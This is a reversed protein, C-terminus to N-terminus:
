KDKICRVSSARRKENTLISTYNYDYYMIQQLTLNHVPLEMHRWWYAGIGIGFPNGASDHNGGPIASFGSKNNASLDNGVAGPKTSSQWLITDALAKGIKLYYGDVGITGDYNYGNDALFTVLRGWETDIPLHWGSPCADLAAPFNYLAGYTKYNDTEKAENLDNGPYGYVYYHPDTDSILSNPSVAPLYALNEAMWTQDGIKVTKYVKGDRNDTFTGFVPGDPQSTTFVQPEGIATGKSNTAYAVYHYTTNSQLGTLGYNFNGTTGSVVVKTGGTDPGPNAITSSWYFGRETITAGGDSVVTGNLKASEKTIDTAPLTTVSPVTVSQNTAFLYVDGTVTGASNTAFSRFSYITGPQLGSLDKSYSGLTGGVVETTDSASPERDGQCWYFGRQLIESRGDSLVTANLTASNETINTAAKTAVQPLAAITTFTEEAGYGTGFSTTAYARVYYPTNPQLGTLTSTFSGLSSGDVTHYNLVSPNPSTNWCVGRSLLPAGGDSVVTGGSTASSSQIESISNTEVTPLLPDAVVLTRSFVINYGYYGNIELRVTYTGTKDYRHTTVKSTSWPHDWQGDGDFDWRVKSGLSVNNYSMARSADLYFDTYITGSPPTIEFNPSTIQSQDGVKFYWLPGFTKKGDMAIVEVRWYYVKNSPFYGSFYYQTLNLNSAIECGSDLDLIRQPDDSFYINFKFGSNIGQINWAFHVKDLNELIIAHPSPNSPQQPFAADDFSVPISVANYSDFLAVIGTSAKAISRVYGYAKSAIGAVNKVVSKFVSTVVAEKIEFYWHYRKVFDSFRALIDETIVDIRGEAYLTPYNLFYVSPNGIMEQLFENVLDDTIEAGSSYWTAQSLLFDLVLYTVNISKMLDDHYGNEFIFADRENEKLSFIFDQQKSYADSQVLGQYFGHTRVGQLVSYLQKLNEINGELSLMDPPFYPEIFGIYADNRIGRGQVNDWKGTTVGVVANSSNYFTRKLQYTNTQSDYTDSWAPLPDNAVRMSGHYSSNWTPSTSATASKTNAQDEDPALTFNDVELKGLLSDISSSLVSDIHNVDLYGKQSVCEDIAQELIKVEEFEYFLDKIEKIYPRYEPRRINPLTLLCFYLATEKANLQYGDDESVDPFGYYVAEQLLTDFAVVISEVNISFNLDGDPVASDFISHIIVHDTNVIAPLELQGDLVKAKLRITDSYATDCTGDVIAARYYGDHDPVILLSDARSESLTAWHLGDESKQWVLSGRYDNVSVKVVSDQRVFFTEENKVVSQGNAFLGAVVPFLIVLIKTSLKM